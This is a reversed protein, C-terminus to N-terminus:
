LFLELNLKKTDVEKFVGKISSIPIYSSMAGFRAEAAQHTFSGEPGLYGINEPLELNRSIAFIELFLAEIASKNLLGKKEQNIKELREIIAKEREPRYIAGGSKAKLAGVKHVIQMRENILDLLKNDITDLQNRLELLGNEDSM